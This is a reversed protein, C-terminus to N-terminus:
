LASNIAALVCLALILAAIYLYYEKFYSFEGKEYYVHDSFKALIVKPVVMFVPLLLSTFVVWWVPIKPNGLGYWLWVAMPVLLSVLYFVSLNPKIKNGYKESINKFAVRQAKVQVRM